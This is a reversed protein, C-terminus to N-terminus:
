LRFATSSSSMRRWCRLGQVASKLLCSPASPLCGSTFFFLFLFVVCGDIFLSCVWVGVRGALSGTLRRSVLIHRVLPVNVGVDVERQLQSTSTWLPHVCSLKRPREPVGHHGEWWSHEEWHRWSRKHVACCPGSSPSLFLCELLRVLCVMYFLSSYLRIKTKLICNCVPSIKNLGFEVLVACFHEHM